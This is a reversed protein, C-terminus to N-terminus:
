VEVIKILEYEEIYLNEDEQMKKYEKLEDRAAEITEYYDVEIERTELNRIIIGYM